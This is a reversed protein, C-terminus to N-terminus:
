PNEESSLMQVLDSINLGKLYNRLQQWNFNNNGNDHGNNNSIPIYQNEPTVSWRPGAIAWKPVFGQRVREQGQPHETFFKKMVDTSKYRSGEKLTMISSTDSVPISANGVPNADMFIRLEAVKEGEFRFIDACPLTVLSGDKRWYMVDMEVIVTNGTEWMMKIDHYLASVQSFFYKVSEFIAGKDLCPEFNGFQYVPNDVFFETFGQSDFAEGRAFLATVIETKRGPMTELLGSPPNNTGSNFPTRTDTASWRPGAIAWKPTHGQLVRKKGLPNEIFFRKMIDAPQYRQQNALTMVSSTDSIPISADGVPNADMFIRLEALKEGEFRCIDFCPLTVESGDKRWYTVDMEVFVTSGVEWMMKIEHYLASVQSFFYKVSEFIAGKDLCPEFNGFQYVPTDTFFEIFGQSDFAEGRSFLAQVLETRKGPIIESTSGGDGYASKGDGMMLSIINQKVQNSAGIRTILDAVFSSRQGALTIKDDHVFTYATRQPFPKFDKIYPRSEQALNQYSNSELFLAADLQNAFAIELAAHYQQGPIESHIVQGASPRSSDIEEFLHLRCKTIQPSSSFVPVLREKMFRRFEAVGVGDAKRIMVHYKLIDQEGNPCGDPIKDVYTISNGPNTNYGIAKSFINHEDDMLIGAAKFWTERQTPSTFTLEAIGDFQEEPASTNIPDDPMYWFGGENHAVHFQWYQHQGPLRACVPGHVDKWYNDFLEVSIGKRKWLLVYFSVKGQQDRSSYDM